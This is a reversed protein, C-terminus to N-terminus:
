LPEPACGCRADTCTHVHAQNPPRSCSRAHIFSRLRADHHHRVLVPIFGVSYMPPKIAAMWLRKKEEPTLESAQIVRPATPSAHDLPNSPTPATGM